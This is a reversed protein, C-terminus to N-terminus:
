DGYEFTSEIVVRYTVRDQGIYAEPDGDYRRAMAQIDRLGAEGDRLFLALGKVGVWHDRLASDIVAMSIRPDRDLNTPWRRGRRSNLLLDGGDLGFWVVAQHARGDESLTAITAVRPQDLFAHIADPLAISTTPSPHGPEM